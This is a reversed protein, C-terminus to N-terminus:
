EATWWTPAPAGMLFHDFFERAKRSLDKVATGGTSHGQGGYQLLVLPKKARRMASYFGIGQRWDVSTDKDDHVLLVPTTVKDVHFVTSERIYSRPDQWYPKTIRPQDSETHASMMQGSGEQIGGYWSILNTPGGAALVARFFPTQTAVFSSEYGGWSHGALGVRTSDVVGAAVAARAAALV